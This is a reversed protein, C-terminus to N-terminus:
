EDTTPAPAPDLKWTGDRWHELTLRAAYDGAAAAEELINTAAETKHRLLFTAAMLKVETDPHRFLLVMGDRGADGYENRLTDWAAFCKDAHRNGAAVDGRKLAARQAQVHKAFDEVLSQISKSV